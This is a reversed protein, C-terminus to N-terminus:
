NIEIQWLILSKDDSASILYNDDLWLINNVSRQHSYEKQSNIVKYLELSESDWIKISKDRSATAIINYLPSPNLAISNITFNHAPIRKQMKLDDSWLNLHADRSGSILQGSNNSTLCFVSSDHGSLAQETEFSKKNIVYISHDSCGASIYKDSLKLCRVSSESVSIKSKITFNNKDLFIISGSGCAIIYNHDDFHKIDFVSGSNLQLHKVLKKKNLDLILINGNQTGCLCQEKNDNLEITFVTEPLSAVLSGDSKNKYSWMVLMRDSGASLFTDNTLKAIAYIAEKHGLFTSTNKINVKSM